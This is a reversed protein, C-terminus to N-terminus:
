FPLDLESMSEMTCTFELGELESVLDLFGELDPVVVASSSSLGVWRVTSM